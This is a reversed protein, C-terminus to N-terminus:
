TTYIHVCPYQCVYMITLLQIVNILLSLSEIITWMHYSSCCYVSNVVLCQQHNNFHQNVTFKIFWISQFVNIKYPYKLWCFATLMHDPNSGMVEAESYFSRGNSIYHCHMTTVVSFDFISACIMDVVIVNKFSKNCVM